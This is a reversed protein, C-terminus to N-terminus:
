ANANADSSQETQVNTWQSAIFLKNKTNKKRRAGIDLLKAVVNGGFFDDVTKHACGLLLDVDPSDQRRFYGRRTRAFEPVKQQTDIDRTFKWFNEIKLFM